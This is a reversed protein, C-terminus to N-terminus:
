QDSKDSRDGDDDHWMYSIYAVLWKSIELSIFNDKWFLHM